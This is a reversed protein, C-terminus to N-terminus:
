ASAPSANEKSAAPSAKPKDDAVPSAKPKPAAPSAAPVAAANTTDEMIRVKKPPQEDEVKAEVEEAKAEVKVEAEETKMPVDGGSAVEMRTVMIAMAGKVDATTYDLLRLASGVGVGEGDFLESPEGAFVAKVADEGDALRGLRQKKGPVADKLM